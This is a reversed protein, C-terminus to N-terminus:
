GLSAHMTSALACLPQNVISQFVAFQNVASGHVPECRVSGSLGQLQCPGGQRPVWLLPNSVPRLRVKMSM